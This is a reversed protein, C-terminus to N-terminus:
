GAEPRDIVRLGPIYGFHSDLTLVVAGISRACCGVVVDPLPLTVGQRDLRWITEEVERWLREDTQVNVMVDWFARLRELVGRMRIGRGVECRVIGCTALDRTVATLALARLPDRGRRLLHIYYSSDVLVPGVAM